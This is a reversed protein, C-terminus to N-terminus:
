NNSVRGQYGWRCRQNRIWQNGRTYSWVQDTIENGAKNKERPGGLSVGFQVIWIMKRVINGKKTLTM